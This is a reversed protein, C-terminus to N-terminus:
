QKSGRPKAAALKRRQEIVDSCARLDGILLQTREREAQSAHPYTELAAIARALASTLISRISPAHETDAFTGLAGLAFTVAGVHTLALGLQAPAGGDAILQDGTNRIADLLPLVYVALRADLEESANM